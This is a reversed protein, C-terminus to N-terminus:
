NSRKLKYFFFLAVVSPVHLLANFLTAMLVSSSVPQHALNHAWIKDGSSLWSFRPIVKKKTAVYVKMGETLWKGNGEAKITVNSGHKRFFNLKDSLIYIDTLLLIKTWFMWDGSYKMGVVEKNLCKIGSEKKFVIASANYLNNATLMYKKIFEAGKIPHPFRGEIDEEMLVNNNEDVWKSATKVVGANPHLSIKEAVRELFLESAYDDSEAIWIWDGKALEFGKQWQMFTSGSNTKNYLIHSVKPHNRYSDIVTRSNDTSCDDLIIVEFNQYTQNLVSDIRQHLFRAHNYNPIIVSVFFNDAKNM